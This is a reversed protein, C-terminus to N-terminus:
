VAARQLIKSLARLGSKKKSNEPMHKSKIAEFKHEFKTKTLRISSYKNEKKDYRHYPYFIGYVSFTIDNIGSSLSESTINCKGFADTICSSKKLDNLFTGNITAGEVTKGTHDHVTVTAILRQSFYGATDNEDVIIADLNRVSLSKEYTFHPRVVFLGLEISSIIVNGSEFWPYNSWAGEFGKRDNEKYTDFYAIEELNGGNEILPEIDLIRLGAKYSAHYMYNGKVYLNHANASFDYCFEKLKYADDLDSVDIIFTTTKGLKLEDDMLFYKKDETLWGQHIYSLGLSFYRVKSLIEPNNKDTVDVITVSNENSCFCIEKGIHDTDPGDYNVCQADHVYGDRRFCGAFQPDTPSSIDVMHLGGRCKNSGVLYAYGSDENIVINHTNSIEAYHTTEPLNMNPTERSLSDLQTLDYVQMGARTAESVIFAHNAYTKVDTWFSTSTHPALRGLVVPLTPTSIDAFITGDSSGIIAYEIGTDSSTWGWIDNLTGGGLDEVNVFAQLDISECPFDSATNNVCFQTQNRVSPIFTQTKTTPDMESDDNPKCPANLYSTKSFGDDEGKVQLLLIWILCLYFRITNM